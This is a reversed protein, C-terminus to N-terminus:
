AQIDLLQYLFFLLVQVALVVRLRHVAVVVVVVAQTLLETAEQMELAQAMEVAALVELDVPLQVIQVQVVAVRMLYQLVLLQFLFVMVETAAQVQFLTVVQKVLAVAVAV